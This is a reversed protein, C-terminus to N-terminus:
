SPKKALAGYSHMRDHITWLVSMIFACCEKKLQLRVQGYLKTAMFVFESPVTFIKVGLHMLTKGCNFVRFTALFM